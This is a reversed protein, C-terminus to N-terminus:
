ARRRSQRGSMFTIVGVTPIVILFAILISVLKALEPNVPTPLGSLNWLPSILQEALAPVAVLGFVITLAFGIRTARNTDNARRDNERMSLGVEIDQLLEPLSMEKWGANLLDRIEGAHSAERMRRRLDLIQFRVAAIEDSSNLQEMRHYLSRHLMYGYELLEVVLQREYILHGRNPDRRPWQNRIGQKSWVWLSTASTVYAGYDDFSRLTPPLTMTRSSQILPAVRALISAFIRHNRRENEPATEAQEDFRVLHIHPRGSWYEGLAPIANQGRLVFDWGERPRKSTLDTVTLDTVSPGSGV